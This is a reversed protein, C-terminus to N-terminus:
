GFNYIDFYIAFDKYRNQNHNMKKKSQQLNQMINTRALDPKQKILFFLIM